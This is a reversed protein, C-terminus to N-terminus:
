QLQMQQFSRRIRPASTVDMRSNYAPLLSCQSNQEKKCRKNVQSNTFLKCKAQVQMKCFLCQVQVQVQVQVPRETREQLAKNLNQFAQIESQMGGECHQHLSWICKCVIQKCQKGLPTPRRVPPQNTTRSARARCNM